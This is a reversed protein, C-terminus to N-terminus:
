PKGNTCRSALRCIGYFGRARRWLRRLVGVLARKGEGNHLSATSRLALESGCSGEGVISPSRLVTVASNTSM